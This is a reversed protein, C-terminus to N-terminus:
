VKVWDLSTEVTKGNISIDGGRRSVSVGSIWNLAKATTSTPWGAFTVYLGDERHEAIPNGFLCLTKGDSHYNGAYAPQKSEFAEIVHIAKM